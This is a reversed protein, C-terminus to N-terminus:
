TARLATIARATAEDIAALGARLEEAPRPLASELERLAARFATRCTRLRARGAPTLEVRYSRGDDPNDRRRVDGRRGIAGLIGSLTSATLGLRLSIERPTLSATGLQSYVAYEAPRVGTGSLAVEMLEGVRQQLVFLDLVLNGEAVALQRDTSPTVPEDHCRPDRFAEPGGRPPVTSSNFPAARRKGPASFPSRSM